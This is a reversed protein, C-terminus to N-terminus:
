LVIDSKVENGWVDWNIDQQFLSKNNHRAFLELKSKDPYWEGIMQKVYDPKSSHQRKKEKIVSSIRQVDKPPSFKGRVGVLLLEHQGRFWYGMGMIEKDWIMSSKYEYGWAKMVSLCEPLKGTTAWLYLVSNDENPIEIEKIETLSMTPYHNEVRRNPTADRYRWPPDAYIISYKKNTTEM